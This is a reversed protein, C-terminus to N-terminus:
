CQATQGLWAAACVKDFIERDSCELLAKLVVGAQTADPGARANLV